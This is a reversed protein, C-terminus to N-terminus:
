GLTFCPLGWEEKGIKEFTKRFIIQVVIFILLTLEENYIQGFFIVHYYKFFVIANYALFAL